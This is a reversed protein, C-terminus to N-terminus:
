SQLPGSGTAPGRAIFPALIESVGELDAMDLQNVVLDPQGTLRGIIKLMDDYFMPDRMPIGRMDGAVIRTRINLEAITQSGHEIPVRLTYKMVSSYNM